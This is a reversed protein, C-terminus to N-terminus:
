FFRMRFSYCIKPYPLLIAPYSFISNKYKKSWVPTDSPMVTSRATDAYSLSRRSAGASQSVTSDVPSAVRPVSPTNTDMVIPQVHYGQFISQISYKVYYACM